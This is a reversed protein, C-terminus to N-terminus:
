KLDKGCHKCIIAVTKIQEGCFSCVKFNDKRKKLVAEILYGANIIFVAALPTAFGWLYKGLISDLYNFFIAVLIIVGIGVVFIAGQLKEYDNDNQM